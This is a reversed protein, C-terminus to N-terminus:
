GGDGRPLASDLELARELLMEAKPDDRGWFLADLFAEPPVLRRQQVEHVPDFADELTVRCWYFDHYETGGDSDHARQAGLRELAHVEAAAEELLERTLAEEPTEGAEIGGGPLWFGPDGPGGGVLLMKGEQTFALAYVRAPAVDTEGVWTFTITRGRHHWQHELERM